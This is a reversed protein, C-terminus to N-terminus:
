SRSRAKKQRARLLLGGLGLGAFGLAAIQSPEPAATFRGGPPATLRMLTTSQTLLLTGNPDPTAFDGRSGGSAILTKALTSTNVEYVTGSNTNVFIEGSLSGYGLAIGDSNGPIAGSDFVLAKSSTDYGLVDGAACYLTKGDASLSLGDAAVSTFVTDTKAIPDVDYITGLTDSVFLHGNVPDGVIGTPARLGSIITQNYTGSSNIQLVNDIKQQTM